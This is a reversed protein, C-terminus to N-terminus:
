GMPYKTKTTEHGKTASGSQMTIAPEPHAQMWHHRNANASKSAGLQGRAAIWKLPLTFPDVWLLVPTL